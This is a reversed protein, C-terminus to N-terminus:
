HLQLFHREYCNCAKPSTCQLDEVAGKEDLNIHYEAMRPIGNNLMDGLICVFYSLYTQLM